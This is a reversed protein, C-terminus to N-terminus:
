GQVNIAIGAAQNFVMVEVDFDGGGKFGSDALGVQDDGSRRALLGEKLGIPELRADMDRSNAAIVGAFLFKIRSDQLAGINDNGILEVLAGGGTFDMVGQNGPNDSQVPDLAFEAFEDGTFNRAPGVGALDGDGVQGAQFHLIGNDGSEGEFLSEEQAQAL